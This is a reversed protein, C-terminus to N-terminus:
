QSCGQALHPLMNLEATCLGLLLNSTMLSSQIKQPVALSNKQSVANLFLAPAMKGIVNGKKSWGWIIAVLEEM